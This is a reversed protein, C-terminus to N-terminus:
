FTKLNHYGSNSNNQAETMNFISDWGRGPNPGKSQLLSMFLM